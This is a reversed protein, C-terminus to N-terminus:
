DAIFNNLVRGALIGIGLSAAFIIIKLQVIDGPWHGLQLFPFYSFLMGISVAIVMPHFMKHKEFLASFAILAILYWPQIESNKNQGTAFSTAAFSLVTLWFAWAFVSGYLVKKKKINLLSVFLFLPLFVATSFKIGISLFLFLYSGVNNKSILFYFATLALFIMVIENHGSVLGEILILPNLAFFAIGLLANGEKRKQFVKGIIWASGLYCAAILFKFLYFTIIFFNFGLFSLPVTIALWIPGYPYVRHTSHMFSLMPDGPFDLAKHVYPNQHYFTVIKADFMYNFFDYSFANYSFVLIVSVFFIIKWLVKKDLRKKIIERLTAVYLISFLGVLVVFLISSLSRNFYGVYQLQKQVVQWFSAQSFTLSLDIQTFSYITAFVATTVWGFILLNKM